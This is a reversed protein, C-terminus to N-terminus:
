SRIMNQTDGEVQADTNPSMAVRYLKDSLYLDM